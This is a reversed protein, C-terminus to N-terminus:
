PTPPLLKYPHAGPLSAVLGWKWAFYGEIEQEDGQNNTIVLEGVDGDFNNNVGPGTPNTGLTLGVTANATTTNGNSTNVASSQTGDFRAILRDALNANDVDFLIAVTSWSGMSAYDTTTIVAPATNGPDVAFASLTDTDGFRAAWGAASGTISTGILVQQNPGSGLGEPVRTVSAVTADSGNHVFNYKSLSTGVLYDSPATRNFRSVDLGNQVGSQLTPRNGAAGQALTEAM